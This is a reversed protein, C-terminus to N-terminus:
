KKKVCSAAPLEGREAKRTCGNADLTKAKPVLGTVAAGEAVVVRPEDDALKPPYRLLHLTYSCAGGATPTM